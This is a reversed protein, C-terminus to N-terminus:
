PAYRTGVVVTRDWRGDGEQWRVIVAIVWGTTAGIRAINWYRQYTIGGPPQAALMATVNAPLESDIHDYATAALTPQKFVGASDAVDGDNGGQTTTFFNNPSASAGTGSSTFPLALLTTLLSQAMTNAQEVHMGISTSKSAYIVTASAATLGIVLVVLAILVEVLTVGSARTRM